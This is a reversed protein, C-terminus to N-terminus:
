GPDSYIICYAVSVQLPLILLNVMHEAGVIYWANQQPKVNRLDM